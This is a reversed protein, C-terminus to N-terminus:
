VLGLRYYGRLTEADMGALEAAVSIVFIPTVQDVGPATAVAM